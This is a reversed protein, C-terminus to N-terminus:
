PHMITLLLLGVFVVAAAALSVFAARMVYEPLANITMYGRLWTGVAERV